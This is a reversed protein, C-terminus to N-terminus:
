QNMMLEGIAIDSWKFSYTGIIYERDYAIRGGGLFMLSAVMLNSFTLLCSTLRQTRTLDVHAWPRMGYLSYWLHRNTSVCYRTVVLAHDV